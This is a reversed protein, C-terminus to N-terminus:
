YMSTQQKRTTSVDSANGTEPGKNSRDQKIEERFPLADKRKIWPWSM